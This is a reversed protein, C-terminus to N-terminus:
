RRRLIVSSCIISFLSVGEIYVHIGQLVVQEVRVHRQARLYEVGQRAQPAAGAPSRGKDGPVGLPARKAVSTAAAVCLTSAVIGRPHVVGHPVVRDPHVVVM